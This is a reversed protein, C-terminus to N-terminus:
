KLFLLTALAKMEIIFMMMICFETRCRYFLRYLGSKIKLTYWKKKELMCPKMLKESELLDDEMIKNALEVPKAVQYLRPQLSKKEVLYTNQHHTM